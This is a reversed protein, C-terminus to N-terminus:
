LTALLRPLAPCLYHPLSLLNFHADGLPTIRKEALVSPPESNFRVALVLKKESVMVQLSRLSGTKGAKVEVPIVRGKSTDITVYDVEAASARRERAWYHLEPEQYPLALCRLQQGILQEALVGNNVLNLEAVQEVETPNLKLQSLLLGTDLGLIKFFRDDREAGLPIGNAGCNFVKSAVRARCLQEVAKALEGSRRHPDLRSYVLKGGLLRPLADFVTTLLQPSVHRQYKHFDLRVTDIIGAKVKETETVSQTAAFVAVAEPMGGVITYLRTLDSLLRHTAEPVPSGLQYSNLFSVLPERKLSILFEPFSLPGIHFLEVRGVPVSFHPESLAFDLLSGTAIVRYEPAEEYFYRLTPLVDPCAQAEDFFLITNDPKIDLALELAIAEVIKRPNLTKFTSTFHWPKELNVEVLRLGAAAALMRVATTKGVQRAGRILLPKRGTTRACWEQMQGICARTLVSGMTLADKSRNGFRMRWVDIFM